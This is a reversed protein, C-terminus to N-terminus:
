EKGERTNNSRLVGNDTVGTLGSRGAHRMLMKAM